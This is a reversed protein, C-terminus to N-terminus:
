ERVTGHEHVIKWGANTRLLVLTQRGRVEHQQGDRVFTTRPYYTAIGIDGFVDIKLDEVEYTLDSISGFYAAESANAGAVDQREFSRPGFKSFKPSNLHLGQLGKIDATMADDAVASVVERLEAQAEPFEDDVLEANSNPACSVLLLFSSGLLIPWHRSTGMHKVEGEAQVSQGVHSLGPESRDLGLGRRRSWNNTLRVAAEVLGLQQPNLKGLSRLLKAHPITILNQADFAGPKLFGVSVAAEFDTGRVSTTHPVLTAFARDTDAAGVSIVLAPRVKAAMGLDVLWVEGRRPTTV